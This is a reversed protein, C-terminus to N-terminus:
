TYRRKHEYRSEETKDQPVQLDCARDPIDEQMDKRYILVAAQKGICVAATHIHEKFLQRPM